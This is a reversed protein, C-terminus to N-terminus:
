FSFGTKYNEIITRNILERGQCNKTECSRHLLCNSQAVLPKTFKMICIVTVVQPNDREIKSVRLTVLM